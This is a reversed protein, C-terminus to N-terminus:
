IKKRKERLAASISKTVILSRKLNRKGIRKIKSSSNGRKIAAPIKTVVNSHVDDNEDKDNSPQSSQIPAGKFL